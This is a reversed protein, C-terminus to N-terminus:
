DFQLIWQTIYLNSIRGKTLVSNINGIMDKRYEERKSVDNLEQVTKFSLYTLIIDKVQSDRKNLEDIVEPGSVELTIECSFIEGNSNAPNLNVADLTKVHVPIESKQGTNEIDLGESNVLSEDEKYASPILLMTGIFYGGVFDVVLIILIIVIIRIISKKKNDAV